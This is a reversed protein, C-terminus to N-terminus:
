VIDDTELVAEVDELIAEMDELVAKVDELKSVSKLAAKASYVLFVPLSRRLWGSAELILLQLLM